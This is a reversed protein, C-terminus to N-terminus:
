PRFEIGRVAFFLVNKDELKRIANRIANVIEECYAGKRQLTLCFGSARPDRAAASLTFSHESQPQVSTGLLALRCVERGQRRTILLMDTLLHLDIELGTRVVQLSNLESLLLRRTLGRRSYDILGGYLLDLEQLAKLNIAEAGSNIVGLVHRQLLVVQKHRGENLGLYQQYQFLKNHPRLLV